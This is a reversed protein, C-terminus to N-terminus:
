GRRIIKQTFSYGSDDEDQTGTPFYITEETASNYYRIKAKFDYNGPATFQPIQPSSLPQWTGWGTNPDKIKISKTFDSTAIATGTVRVTSNETAVFSARYVGNIYQYNDIPANNVYFQLSAPLFGSNMKLDCNVTDGINVSTPVTLTSQSVENTKTIVCQEGYFPHGFSDYWDMSRTWTRVVSPYFIGNITQSTNGDLTTVTGNGVAIVFATHALEGSYKIFAQDGVRPTKDCRGIRVYAAKAGSVGAGYGYSDQPKIAESAEKSRGAVVYVCWDVFCTCWDYGNKDGNYYGASYLDRAYKTYKSANRVTQANATKDDLQSNTKKAIYGLEGRAVSLVDEVTAM